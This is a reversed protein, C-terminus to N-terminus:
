RERGPPEQSSDFRSTRRTVEPPPAQDRKRSNASVDAVASGTLLALTTAIMVQFTQRFTESLDPCSKLGEHMACYVFGATFIIAQFAFITGLLFLLFKEKNFPKSTM